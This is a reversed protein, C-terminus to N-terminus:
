CMGLLIEYNSERASERKSNNFLLEMGKRITDLNEM